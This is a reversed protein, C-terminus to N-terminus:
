EMVLQPKFGLYDASILNYEVADITGQAAAHHASGHLHGYWCRKVGYEAMVDVIAASVSDAFRPPYHLFCLKEQAEGAAELSARLRAAERATIKANHEPEEASDFQWGRTGCIATNKYFYCNNHLIEINEIANDSFYSRMKTATDWWYDHNGKLIIKRGPLASIFKIDELSEGFSMGWSLDGCLVCVDDNQLESFGVKIKEVYDEWGGGFVDMPKGSSLSLHLDGIAYLAM